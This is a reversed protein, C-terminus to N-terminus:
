DPRDGILAENVSTVAKVYKRAPHDGIKQLIRNTVDKRGCLVVQRGERAISALMSKM